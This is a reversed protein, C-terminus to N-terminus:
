TEHGHASNPIRFTHFFIFTFHFLIPLNIEQLLTINKNFFYRRIDIKVLLDVNFISEWIKRNEVCKWSLGSSKQRVQREPLKINRIFIPMYSNM